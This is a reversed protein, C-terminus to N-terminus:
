LAEVAVNDNWEFRYILTQNGMTIVPTETVIFGEVSLYTRSIYRRVKPATGRTRLDENPRETVNAEVPAIDTEIAAVGSPATLKGFLARLNSGIDAM